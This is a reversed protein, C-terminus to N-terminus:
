GWFRKERARKPEPWSLIRERKRPLWITADKYLYNAIEECRNVGRYNLVRIVKNPNGNWKLTVPNARAYKIFVKQVEMLFPPRGAFSLQPFRYASGDGDFWGRLFHNLSIEPIKQILEVGRPRHPEVCLERLKDALKVDSVGLRVARYKGVMIEKTRRGCGIFDEFKYLHNKDKEALAIALNSRWVTADAFLFGLWYAPLEDSLEDFRNSRVDYPRVGGSSRMKVNWDKLVREIVMTGINMDLSISKQSLGGRYKEVIAYEQEQNTTKPVGAVWSGFPRREVNNERLVRDVPATSMKLKNAITKGSLGSRYLEIILNDIEPTTIKAVM